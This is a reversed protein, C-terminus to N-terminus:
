DKKKGDKDTEETEFLKEMNANDTLIQTVKIAITPDEDLADIFNDWDLECDKNNALILSYYYLYNDLSNKIEFPRGAIQEWIFLGRLTQKVVYQTGNITITKTTAM